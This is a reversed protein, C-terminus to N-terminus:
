TYGSGPPAHLSKAAHALLVAVILGLTFMVDAPLPEIGRLMRLGVATLGSGSTAPSPVLEDRLDVAAPQEDLRRALDNLEWRIHQNALQTLL